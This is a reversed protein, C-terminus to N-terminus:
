AALALGNQGAQATVLDIDHHHEVGAAGDAGGLHVLKQGLDVGDLALDVGADRQMGTIM